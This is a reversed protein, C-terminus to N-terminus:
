GPGHGAGLTTRLRELGAAFQEQESPEWDAFAAEVAGRLEREVDRRFARGADTVHLHHIRRDAADQRREVFGQAVLQQVIPTVSGPTLHLRAAVDGHRIGPEADIQRLAMM